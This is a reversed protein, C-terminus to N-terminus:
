LDLGGSHRDNREIRLSDTSGESEVSENVTSSEDTRGETIENSSEIAVDSEGSVSDTISNGFLADFHQLRENNEEYRNKLEALENATSSVQNKLFEIETENLLGINEAMDSVCINCFYVQGYYDIFLGLDVYSREADGNGCSSCCAPALIDGRGLIKFKTDPDFQKSAAGSPLLQSIGQTM